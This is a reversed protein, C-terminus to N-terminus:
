NYYSRKGLITSSGRLQLSGCYPKTFRRVIKSNAKAGGREVDKYTDYTEPPADEHIIGDWIYDYYRKFKRLTKEENSNYFLKDIDYIFDDLTEYETIDKYSDPYKDKAREIKNKKDNYIAVREKLTHQTQNYLYDFVKKSMNSNKIEEKLEETLEPDETNGFFRDRKNEPPNIIDILDQFSNINEEKIQEKSRIGKNQIQNILNIWAPAPKNDNQYANYVNPYQQLYEEATQKNAIKFLYEWEEIAASKYLYNLLKSIKNM